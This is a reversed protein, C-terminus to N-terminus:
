FYFFFFSRVRVISIKTEMTVERVTRYVTGRTCFTTATVRPVSRVTPCVREAPLHVCQVRAVCVFSISPACCIKVTLPWAERHPFPSKNRVPPYHSRLGRGEQHAIDLKLSSQWPRSQEVKMPKSSKKSQVLMTNTIPPRWQGCKFM